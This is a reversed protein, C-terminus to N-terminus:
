QAQEDGADGEHRRHRRRERLRLVDAGRFSYVAQKPDGILVLTAEGEGFARRMIEWQIPDTDQFEDVLAVDYQERLRACAARRKGNRNERKSTAERPTNQLVGEIASEFEPDM